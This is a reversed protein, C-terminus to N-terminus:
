PLAVASTPPVTLLAAIDDEKIHGPDFEVVIIASCMDLDVLRVGPTHSLVDALSSLRAPPADDIRYARRM